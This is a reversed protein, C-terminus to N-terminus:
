SVQACDGHLHMEMKHERRENNLSPAAKEMQVPVPSYNERVMEQPFKAVSALSQACIEVM